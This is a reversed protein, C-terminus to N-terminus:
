SKPQPEASKSKGQVSLRLILCHNVYGEKEQM